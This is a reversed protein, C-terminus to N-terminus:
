YILGKSQTQRMMLKNWWDYGNSERAVKNGTICDFVGQGQSSLVILLDKEPAFGINELGGVGYTIKHTWM